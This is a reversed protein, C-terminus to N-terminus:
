KYRVVLSDVTYSTFVGSGGNINSYIPSSETFPNEGDNYAALSKHFLYYSKETNYLYIKLIMSDCQASFLDNYNYYKDDTRLIINKGDMGNDSFFEKDFPVYRTSIYKRTSNQYTYTFYGRALGFIRYYNEEAPVDAFSVRFEIRTYDQGAHYPDYMDYKAKLSFTDVEISFSNKVPVTSTAEANLGNSSHIKILYTSGYKIQMKESGIKLGKGSTDLDATTIGDSITGTLPGLPEETNLEGFIKKNTVVDFYSVKDSPSIFGTIVLKQKFPPANGMDADTECSILTALLIFIIIYRFNLLKM